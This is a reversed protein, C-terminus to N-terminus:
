DIFLKVITKYDPNYSGVSLNDKNFEEIAKRLKSVGELMDQVGEAHEECANELICDLDLSVPDLYTGYAYKPMPLKKISFWDEMTDICSFYEGSEEDYIYVLGETMYDIIKVDKEKLKEEWNVMM